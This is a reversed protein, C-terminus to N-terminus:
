PFFEIAGLDPKNDRPNGALDDPIAPNLIIGKDIAPSGAKLKFDATFPDVFMPSQNYFNNSFHQEKSAILNNSISTTFGASGGNDMLLEESKSGYIISNVVECTMPETKLIVGNADRLTNTLAFSGEQRASFTAYGAFTCHRFKYNGGLLGLFTYAGAQGFLCNDARIHSTIGALCAQGCYLISTHDMVLNNQGFVPLSDVRVGIAANHIRAFSIENETSGVALYIGGWQNPLTRAEFGLKDGTFYVPEDATGRLKLSGQVYLLSRASNYVTVGEKVTFSCGPMVVAFDVIVYPKVKDDWIEGCILEAKHYYHADWGWAALVVSQRNGNVSTLLSDLVLAPQTQNNAELTCQVFVFISDKAPIEVEKIDTGAFGDVNIRYPSAAGGALRFDAKVIGNEKNKIWFIKTVSIPYKTGPSRTFLTDFWVTDSSIQLRTSGTFFTEKGCSSFLLILVSIVAVSRLLQRM